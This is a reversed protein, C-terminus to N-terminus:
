RNKIDVIKDKLRSEEAAYVVLHGNISDSLETISISSKDNNLYDILEKMIAYDGGNHGAGMHGQVKNQNFIFENVDITKTDPITSTLNNKRLYIIGKELNGEIEGETGIVYITRGATPSGGTLMFNAVSGDAFNVITTQRDVVNANPVKYICRGFDNTKLFEMKEEKSPNPKNLQVFTLESSYNNEMYMRIASYLCTRELPCNYCFETSEKPADEKNFYHRGGFSAVAKPATKNNLWCLIDIDHCSKALLLDSGCIVNNNWKGRVYSGAYHASGVHEAMEITKIHGIENDLILQKIAKYFPTYRLVHGVFVQTNHEKATKEILLLHKKNNVIPKETLVAKGTKLLPMLTEFHQQDMTGNIYLDIDINSKMLDDVSSFLQENKLSFKDKALQLRYPNVDCVAVISMREPDISAYNAYISGRDGYGIVCAKIKM